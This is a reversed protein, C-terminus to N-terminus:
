ILRTSLYFIGWAALMMVAVYGSSKDIHWTMIDHALVATIILAVTLALLQLLVLMNM